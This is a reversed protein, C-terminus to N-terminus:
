HCCKGYCITPAPDKICIKCVAPCILLSTHTEVEFSGDAAPESVRVEGEPPPPADTGCSLVLAVAFLLKKM